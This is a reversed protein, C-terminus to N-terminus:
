GRKKEIREIMDLSLMSNSNKPVLTDGLLDLKLRKLNTNEDIGLIKVGAIVADRLIGIRGGHVHAKKGTLVDNLVGGVFRPKDYQMLYATFYMYDAYQLAHAQCFLYPASAKIFLVVAQQKKTESYRSVFEDFKGEENRTLLTIAKGAELMPMDLFNSLLKMAQQQFLLIGRSEELIGSEAVDDPVDIPESNLYLRFIGDDFPSKRCLALCAALDIQSKPEANAMMRSTHENNCMFVFPHYDDHIFVSYANKDSRAIHKLHNIPSSKDRLVTTIDDIVKLGLLEVKFLGLAEAEDSTIGLTKKSAEGHRGHSAYVGYREPPCPLYVRSSISAAAGKLTGILPSAFAALESMGEDSTIRRFLERADDESIYESHCKIVNIVKEADQKLQRGVEKSKAIARLISLTGYENSREISIIHIEDNNDFMDEIIVQAEARCEFDLRVKSAAFFSEAPLDNLYPDVTSLELLYAVLLSSAKGRLFILEDARRMENKICAMNSLVHMMNHQRFLKLEHKLRKKYEDAQSNSIVLDIIESLDEHLRTEDLAKNIWLPEPSETLTPIDDYASFLEAMTVSNFNEGELLSLITSPQSEGVFSPNEAKQAGYLAPLKNQNELALLHGRTTANVPQSLVLKHYKVGIPVRSPSSRPDILCFVEFKVRLLSSTNESLPSALWQVPFFVQLSSDPANDIASCFQEVNDFSPTMRYLSDRGRLSKAYVTVPNLQNNKFTFTRGYIPKLDYKKAALEHEYLDVLTGTNSLPFYPFKHAKLQEALADATDIGFGTSTRSFVQVPNLTTM